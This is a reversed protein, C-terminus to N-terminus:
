KGGYKKGAFWFQGNIIIPFYPTFSGNKNFYFVGFGNVWRNPKNRLYSPNLDCLCGCSHGMIPQQDYNAQTFGQMDHCHGYFINDGMVQVTARAHYMNHYIGHAFRARGVKYVKNEPIVDYGREVLRLEQSMEILGEIQPHEDLYQELWMDHNGMLFVKKQQTFKDIIDLLENGLAYDHKLRRGERLRPKNKSFRGVHDLNIFDGGIITGHPKFEKCFDLCAWLAPSLNPKWKSGNIPIAESHIDPLFVLRFGDHLKM